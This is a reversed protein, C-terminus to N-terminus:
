PGGVGEAEPLKWIGCGLDDRDDDDRGAALRARLGAALRDAAAFFGAAADAALRDFAAFFGAAADAALRDFAAFFGAALARFGAALARLGAAAVARLGAAFRLVAFDLPVAVRAVVRAAAVAAALVSCAAWAL